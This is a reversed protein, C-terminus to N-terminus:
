PRMAMKMPDSKMRETVVKKAQVLQHDESRDGGVYREVQVHPAVGQGSYPQGKPSYFRAVTVRIGGLLAGGKIVALQLLQQSCMKGFTTQGVLTAREQDKLAGALVEAASATDGDVLIVIPIDKALCPVGSGNKVLHRTPKADHTKTIVIVGSSLFRRACDVAAEFSGGPNGRLDLILGRLGGDRLYVLATDLEQPTTKQFQFIQIYGIEPPKEMEMDPKEVLWGAEVSRLTFRQRKLTVLRAQMGDTIVELEVTTGAPGKLLGMAATATLDTAIRKDIRTIQDEPKLREKEAPSGALIRTIVLKDDRITLEIGVGVVKRRKVSNALARLQGPTLYFTYEDLATCAGCAFEMVVLNTTLDLGGSRIPHQAAMAVERVLKEADDITLVPRQEWRALAALFRVRVEDKQRDSLRSPLYKDLVRHELAFRFEELGQKFLVDPSPREVYHDQLGALMIKYLSVADAYDLAQIQKFYSPDQHRRLQQEHRFCRQLGQRSEADDRFQKLIDAYIRCAQAWKNEKELRLALALQSNRDKLEPNPDGMSVAWAQPLILVTGVVLALTVSLGRPL